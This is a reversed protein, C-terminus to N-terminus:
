GLAGCGFGRSRQRQLVEHMKAETIDTIVTVTTQLRGDPGDSRTLALPAEGSHRIAVNLVRERPLNAIDRDIWLQPDTDM